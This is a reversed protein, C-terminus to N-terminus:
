RALHVPSCRHVVSRHRGPQCPNSCPQHRHGADRHTAANGRQRTAGDILSLGSLGTENRHSPQDLVVAFSGDLSPIFSGRTTYGAHVSVPSIPSDLESTVFGVVDVVFHADTSTYLCVHDPPRVKVTASNAVNTGPVFNVTSTAPREQACPYLTAFGKASANVATLNLELASVTSSEFQDYPVGGIGDFQFGYVKGARTSNFGLTRTDLLRAPAIPIVDSDDLIYAVVDLVFDTEASAFVCVRRLISGSELRVITANAVNAEPTFNLTSALPRPYGCDYLTAYGNATANVATLNV